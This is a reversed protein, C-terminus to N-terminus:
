TSVLGKAPTRGMPRGMAALLLEADVLARLSTAAAISRALASSGPQVAMGSAPRGPRRGVPLAPERPARDRRHLGSLHRQYSWCRWAGGPDWLGQSFDQQRVGFVFWGFRARSPGRRVAARAVRWGSAASAAIDVAQVAAPRDACDAPVSRSAPAPHPLWPVGRRLLVPAHKTQSSPAASHPRSCRPWRQSQPRTASRSPVGPSCSRIYLAERRQKARVRDAM